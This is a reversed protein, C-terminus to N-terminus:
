LSCYSPTPPRVRCARLLLAPLAAREAPDFEGLVFGAVVERATYLIHKQFLGTRFGNILADLVQGPTPMIIQPVDFLRVYFHWVALVLVLVVLWGCLTSQFLLWHRPTITIRHSRLKALLHRSM